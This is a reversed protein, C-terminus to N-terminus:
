GSDANNSDHKKERIWLNVEAWYFFPMRGIRHSPLGRKMWRQVTRVNVGLDEALQQLRIPSEKEAM